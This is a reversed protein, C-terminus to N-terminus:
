VRRPSHGYLGWTTSEPSRLDSNLLQQQAGLRVGVGFDWCSLEFDESRVGWGGLTM